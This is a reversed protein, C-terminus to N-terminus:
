MGATIWAGKVSMALIGLHCFKATTNKKYLEEVGCAGYM